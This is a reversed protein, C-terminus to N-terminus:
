LLSLYMGLVHTQIAAHNRLPLDHTTLRKAGLESRLMSFEFKLLSLTLQIRALYGCCAALM